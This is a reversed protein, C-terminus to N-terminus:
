SCRGRAEVKVRDVIEVGEVMLLEDALNTV